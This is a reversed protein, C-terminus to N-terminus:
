LLLLFPSFFIIIIFHIFLGAGFGSGSPHLFAVFHTKPAEEATQNATKKGTLFLRLAGHRPAARLAAACSLEGGGGEM